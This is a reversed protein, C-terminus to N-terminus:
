LYVARTRGTTNRQYREMDLETLADLEQAKAAQALTPMYLYNLFIDWKARNRILPEAYNTWGNSASGTLTTLRKVYSVTLDYISGPTPYLYLRDQYYAYQNPQGSSAGAGAYSVYEQYSIPDVTYLVKSIASLAVTSATATAAASAGDIDGLTLSTAGLTRIYSGAPIGSGTIQQGVSLGTVSSLNDVTTNSHTDGTLSTISALQVKDMIVLDTPAAVSTFGIVTRATFTAAENFWTREREYHEVASVIAATAQATSVNANASENVEASVRTLITALTYAGM